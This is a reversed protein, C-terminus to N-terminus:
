SSYARTRAPRDMSKLEEHRESNWGAPPAKLAAKAEPVGTSRHPAVVSGTRAAVLAATLQKMFGGLNPGAGGDLSTNTSLAGRLRDIEIRLGDIAGVLKPDRHGETGGRTTLTSPSTTPDPPFGDEVFFILAVMVGGLFLGVAALILIFPSSSM